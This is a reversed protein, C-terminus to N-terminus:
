HYINISDIMFLLDGSHWRLSIKQVIIILFRVKPNFVKTLNHIHVGATESGTYIEHANPDDFAVDEVTM